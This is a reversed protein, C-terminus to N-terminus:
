KFAGGPVLFQLFAYLFMYAVIAIITNFIRNKARATKQPDGESTAYNIGGIIISIIALIGFSLTLVNISPNIFKKVFDCDDNDCKANPNAAPDICSKKDSQCITKDDGTAPKFSGKKYNKYDNCEDSLKKTGGSGHVACIKQYAKDMDSQNIYDKCYKGYLTTKPIEKLAACIEDDFIKRSGPDAAKEDAYANPMVLLFPAIMALMVLAATLITHLRKFM